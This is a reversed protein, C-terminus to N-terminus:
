RKINKALIIHNIYLENNKPLITHFLLGFLNIPFIFLPALIFKLTDSKPLIVKHVYAAFLQVVSLFFGPSKIHDVIEYNCNKLVSKIGSSTYRGFDNPMEHEPWVFPMSILFLGEKKHVRNIDLLIENLNFVHEFVESSYISDFRDNEFPIKKGDYFVDIENTPLNHGTNSMLDIGIYSRTNFLDKYPKTGCGFDLLDGSLKKSQEKIGKYIARRNFYYPNFFVSFLGPKFQEQRNKTRVLQIFNM